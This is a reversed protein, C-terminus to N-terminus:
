DEEEEVEEEEGPDGESSMMDLEDLFEDVGGAEDGAFFDLGPESKVHRLVEEDAAEQKIDPIIGPTATEKLKRFISQFGSTKGFSSTKSSIKRKGKKMFRDRRWGSLKYVFQAHTMGPYYKGPNVVSDIFPMINDNNFLVLSQDPEPKKDTLLYCDGVDGPLEVPHLIEACYSKNASKLV